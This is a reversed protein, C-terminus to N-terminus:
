IDLAQRLVYEYQEGTIKERIHFCAVSSLPAKDDVLCRLDKIAHLLGESNKNYYENEFVKLYANCDQIKQKRAINFKDLNLIEKTKEVRYIEWADITLPIVEGNLDFGVLKVDDQNCPDLLLYESELTGNTQAPSCGSKLPFYDGKGGGQNCVACSLRFNKYDYALWWYGDALIIKKREDLSEGKPRFHDIDGFDISLDMDSYWCKNGFINIFTEKAKSWYTHNDIYEKREQASSLTAVKQSHKKACTIWRKMYNGTGTPILKLDIYRM